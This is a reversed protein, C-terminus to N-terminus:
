PGPGSPHRRYWGKVGLHLIEKGKSPSLGCGLLGTLESPPDKGLAKSVAGVKESLCQPCVKGIEIKAGANKLIYIVEM